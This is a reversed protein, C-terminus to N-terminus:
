LPPSDSCLLAPQASRASLIAHCLFLFTQSILPKPHECVVSLHLTCLPLTSPPSLPHSPPSFPRPFSAPFLPSAMVHRRALLGSSLPICLQVRPSCFPLPLGSEEGKGTLFVYFTYHLYTFEWVNDLYINEWLHALTNIVRMGPAGPSGPWDAKATLIGM